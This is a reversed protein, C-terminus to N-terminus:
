HVLRSLPQTVCVFSSLLLLFAFSFVLFGDWYGDSLWRVGSVESVLGSIALAKRGKVARLRLNPGGVSRRSECVFLFGVFSFQYLGGRPSSLVLLLPIRVM